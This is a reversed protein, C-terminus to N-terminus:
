TTCLCYTFFGISSICIAIYYYRIIIRQFINNAQIFIHPNSSNRIMPYVRIVNIIDNINNDSEDMESILPLACLDNPYIIDYYNDKYEVFYMDNDSVINHHVNLEEKCIICKNNNKLFWLCLCKNHILINNYCHNYLIYNKENYDIDEYCILCSNDDM